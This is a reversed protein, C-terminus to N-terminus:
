RVRAPPLGADGLLRDREHVADEEAAEAPRLVTGAIVLAVLVFGAGIGFSLHYGSTLAAPEFLSSLTRPLARSLTVTSQLNPQLGTAVRGSPPWQWQLGLRTLM